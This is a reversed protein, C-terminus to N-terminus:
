AVVADPQAEAPVKMPVMYKAVENAAPSKRARQGCAVPYVEVPQGAAFATAFPIDRRVVLYGHTGRTLTTYPLQETPTSGVKFTLELDWKVRGVEETDTTSGLSGTDVAATTPDIKLGDPTIRLTFDPCANLEPATPATLSSLSSAWVVKTLGDSILDSM